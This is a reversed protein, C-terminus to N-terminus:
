MPTVWRLPGLLFEGRDPHHATPAVLARGTTDVTIVRGPIAGLVRAQALSIVQNGLVVVDRTRARMEGTVGRLLNEVGTMADTVFLQNEDKSLIKTGENIWVTGRVAIRAGDAFAFCDNSGLCFLPADLVRLPFGTRESAHDALRRKMGPGYLELPAGARARCAVVLRLPAMSLIRLEAGCSAPVLETNGVHIAGDNAKAITASGVHGLISKGLELTGTDLRLWADPPGSTISPLTSAASQCTEAPATERLTPPRRRVGTRPAERAFWAAAWTGQRDAILAAVPRALEIVREVPQALDRVVVVRGGTGRRVYALRKSEGDITALGRLGDRYTPVEADAVVSVAGTADDILTLAGNRLMVLWRDDPSPAIWGDIPEGDGVVGGRFLYPLMEDGALSDTAIVVRTRGDGDNDVRAQCAVIWRGGAASVVVRTPDATGIARLEPSSAAARPEPSPILSRTADGHGRAQCALLTALATAYTALRVGPGAWGPSM